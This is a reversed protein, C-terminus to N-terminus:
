CFTACYGANVQVPYKCSNNENIIRLEAEHEHTLNPLAPRNVASTWSGGGGRLTEASPFAM